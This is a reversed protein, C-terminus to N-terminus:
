KGWRSTFRMVDAELEEIDRGESSQIDPGDAKLLNRLELIEMELKNRERQLDYGEEAFYQAELRAIKDKLVRNEEM